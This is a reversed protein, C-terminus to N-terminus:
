RFKKFYRIFFTTLLFCEEPIGEKYAVTKAFQLKVHLETQSLDIYNVNTGPIDFKVVRSSEFNPHPQITDWVGEEVVTQTPPVSFLDLESKACEESNNIKM